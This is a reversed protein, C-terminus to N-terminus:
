EHENRRKGTFIRGKALVTIAWCPLAGLFSGLVNCLLDDTQFHGMRGFLQVLEVTLSVGLGVLVTVLVRRRVGTPLAGSVVAGFPVFLLTNLTFQRAFDETFGELFLVELPFPYHTHVGPERKWLTACYILWLAVPILGRCGWRFLRPRRRSLFEMGTWGALFGAALLYLLPINMFYVTHYLQSM